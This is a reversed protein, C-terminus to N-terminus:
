KSALKQPDIVVHRIRERKWTYTAHVSGDKAQIIAPYSYEGPQDELVVVPKWTKGKDESLAVSLPTRGSTTPNYVLLCRGDKLRVADIGADPNPVDTKTLKTWTKGGDTSRAQVVRGTESRCLIQIDDPAHVLVTPQITRMEEKTNLPETRGWTKALDDTWEMHVLWGDHESSSGALLRKGDNILVPKNKVPGLIGDPLRTEKSWTKGGDTSTKLMGWWSHPKPGVNYFLMLPPAGDGPPQFLVPNWCPHREDTRGPTVGTAVEVPRTWKGNELRAFWIGVDKEGEDTGGFWAAVITGDTAQEITSAHCSPFPADDYILQRSAVADNASERALMNSHSMTLWATAVVIAVLLTRVPRRSPCYRPPNNM